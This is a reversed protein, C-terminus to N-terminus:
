EVPADLGVAGAMFELAEFANDPGTGVPAPLEEALEKWRGVQGSAAWGPNGDRAILSQMTTVLTSATDTRGTAKLALAVPYGTFIVSEVNLARPTGPEARQVGWPALWTRVADFM